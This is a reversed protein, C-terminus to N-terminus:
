RRGLKGGIMNERLSKLAGTIGGGNCETRWIRRWLYMMNRVRVGVSLVVRVDVECTQITVCFISSINLPPILIDNLKASGASSLSLPVRIVYHMVVQALHTTKHMSNM